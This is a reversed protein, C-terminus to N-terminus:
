NEHSGPAPAQFSSLIINALHEGLLRHTNASIHQHGNPVHLEDGNQIITSLIAESDVVQINRASLLQSIEDPISSRFQASKTPVPIDLVILRAGINHCFDDVALLLAAGLEIEYSGTEETEVPIAYETPVNDTSSRNLIGKAIEYVTNFGFSFFYSNESLWRIVRFQYLTDQIEVGPLHETKATILTGNEFKYLGAKLNDQLDNAYFAVVVFHPNYKYGESSLYALQESTGFGSIGTNLVQAILDNKILTAELVASFTESQGVEYGATHSDGLALIRPGDTYPGYDYDHNDRFGQANITFQWEGDVSSHRFSSNPRFRRISFDGYEAKTHYRPFM